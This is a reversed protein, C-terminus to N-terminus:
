CLMKEQKVSCSIQGQLTAPGGGHIALYERTGMSNCAHLEEMRSEGGELGEESIVMSGPM